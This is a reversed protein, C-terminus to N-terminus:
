LVRARCIRRVAPLRRRFRLRRRAAARAQDPAFHKVRRSHRRRRVREPLSILVGNLTVGKPTFGGRKAPPKEKVVISTINIFERIAVIFGGRKAPLKERRFAYSQVFHKRGKADETRRLSSFM